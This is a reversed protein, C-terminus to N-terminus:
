YPSTSFQAADAYGLEGTVDESEDLMTWAGAAADVQDDHAANPFSTLEDLFADTWHSRVLHVLGAAAKAALPLANTLKDKDKPYGWIAYGHFRPDANLSQIARSMYGKQEIGQPVNAGDELIVSSLYETLNGWDVRARKVDLVYFHGDAGQGIKVGATYDASTKESMALDWFRAARAIPPPESVISFWARKFIGGEAPAPRQQYLASWSYPGLTREIDQLAELPYRAPWLAQGDDGIAPLSLVRWKDPEHLMLRGALDDEHWRTNHSVLGNAIFNETRAIQVDFVEKEGAPEVSTVTDVTFDSTNLLRSRQQRQRQTGLLLTAIMAFFRGLRTPRTTTISACSKVGIPASTKGLHNGAYLVSAMKPKTCLTMSKLPSATVISSALAVGAKQILRLPATVMLGISKATTLSVTVEQRFPNMAGTWWAPREKGNEGNVRATVIKHGTSLSKVQIWKLQGHEEVLFPHRANAHVIRGSTTSIKYVLDPGNSRHAEVVSSSLNGNDYTAVHDGAKIEALPKTTGNAMLVPTDGTMCMILVIAANPERRTYLDDRYWDWIKDRITSSEAEERSKVVDDILIIQGGKGTVGGGVGIADLGGEHGQVDWADAAKSDQALRVGPFLEAYAQSAVINRAVRSNKTALTAGYSAMIIRWDPHNGIVWAPFMRSATLTKGFRPPMNIMTFGCGARGASEVYTVADELAQDILKLHPAHMYRKYIRRKFVTFDKRALELWAEHRLAEREAKTTKM